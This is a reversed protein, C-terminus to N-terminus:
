KSQNRVEIANNMHERENERLEPNSGELIISARNSSLKSDMQIDEVGLTEQVLDLENDHDGLNSKSSRNSKLKPRFGDNQIEITQDNAIHQRSTQQIASYTHFNFFSSLHVQLRIVRPRHKM